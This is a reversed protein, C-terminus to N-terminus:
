SRLNKIAHHFRDPNSALAALRGPHGDHAGDVLEVPKAQRTDLLQQTRSRLSSLPSKVLPAPRSSACITVMLACTM